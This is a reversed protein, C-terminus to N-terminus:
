FLDMQFWGHTTKVLSQALPLSVDWDWLSQHGVTYVPKIFPQVAELKWAYRGPAFNGCAREIESLKGALSDTPICATLQVLCVGAGFPMQDPTGVFQAIADAFPWRACFAKEEATFRKAAHIVLPGRYPTYWHRTEFRKLGWTIMMAWPNWLSLAKAIM